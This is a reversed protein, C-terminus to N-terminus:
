VDPPCVPRGHASVRSVWSVRCGFWPPGCDHLPSPPRPAVRVKQLFVCLRTRSLCGWQQPASPAQSVVSAPWARSLPGGPGGAALRAKSAGETSFPGAGPATFICRPLPTESVGAEPAPGSCRRGKGQAETGGNRSQADVQGHAGFQSGPDRRCPQSRSSLSAPSAVSTRSSVHPPPPPRHLSSDQHGSRLRPIM